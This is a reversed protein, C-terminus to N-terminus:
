LILSPFLTGVGFPLSRAKLCERDLRAWSAAIRNFTGHVKGGTVDNLKYRGIYVVIYFTM